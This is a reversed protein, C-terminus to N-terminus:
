PSANRDGAPTDPAPKAGQLRNDIFFERRTPPLVADTPLSPPAETAQVLRARVVV